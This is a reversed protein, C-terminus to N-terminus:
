AGIYRLIYRARGKMKAITDEYRWGDSKIAIISRLGTILVNLKEYDVDLDHEQFADNEAVNFYDIAKRFNREQISDM